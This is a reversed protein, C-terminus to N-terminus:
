KKQKKKEVIAEIAGILEGMGEGTRASVTFTTLKSNVDLAHKLCKQINFDVYPALDVKNLIFYDANHFITPYKAPKDDGEAVSLMVFMADEGLDYSAPCVLNGINEIILLDLDGAKIDDLLEEVQIAELHCADGTQIQIANVGVARLRDADNETRLDGEIVALRYRTKLQPLLKELLTTKGSGPASALNIVATGSKKFRERLRKAVIDNKSLVKENINIRPM